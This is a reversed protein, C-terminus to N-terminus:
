SGPLSPGRLLVTRCWLGTHKSWWLSTRFGQSQLQRGVWAELFVESPAGEVQEPFGLVCANNHRVWGEADKVRHALERIVTTMTALEQKLTSVDGHLSEINSDAVTM